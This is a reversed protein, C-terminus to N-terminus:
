KMIRKMILVLSKERKEKARQELLRIDNDIEEKRQKKQEFADNVANQITNRKDQKFRTELEDMKKEYDESVKRLREAALKGAKEIMESATKESAKIEQILNGSNKENWRASVKVGPLVAKASWQM